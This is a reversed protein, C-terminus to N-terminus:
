VVSKRDAVDLFALGRTLAERMRERHEKGSGPAFQIRLRVAKDVRLFFLPEGDAGELVFTETGKDKELWFQPDIDRHYEDERTWVRALPEDNETATRLKYGDFEFPTNM